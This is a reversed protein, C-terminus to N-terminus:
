IRPQISQRAVLEAVADIVDQETQYLEEGKANRQRFGKPFLIDADWGNIECMVACAIDFGTQGGSRFSSPLYRKWLQSFVDLLYHNARDQDASM